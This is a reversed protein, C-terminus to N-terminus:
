GNNRGFVGRANEAAPKDADGATTADPTAGGTSTDPEGQAPVAPDQVPAATVEVFDPTAGSEADFDADVFQGDYKVSWGRTEYHPVSLEPVVTDIDKDTEADKRTIVVFNTM